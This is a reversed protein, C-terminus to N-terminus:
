VHIINYTFSCTVLMRRERGIGSHWIYLIIWIYQRKAEAFYQDIMVILGQVPRIWEYIGCFIPILLVSLEIELSHIM